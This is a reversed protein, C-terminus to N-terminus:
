RHPQRLAQLLRGGRDCRVVTRDAHHRERHGEREEGLNDTVDAGNWNPKIDLTITGSAPNANGFNPFFLSYSCNPTLM